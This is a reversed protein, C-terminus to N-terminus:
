LVTIELKPKEKSDPLPKVLKFSIRNEKTIGAEEAIEKPIRLIFQRGDDTLKVTEEVVYPIPEIAEKVDKPLKTYDIRMQKRGIQQQHIDLKKRAMKDLLYVM